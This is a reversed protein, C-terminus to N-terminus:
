AESIPPLTMTWEILTGGISATYSSHTSHGTLGNYVYRGGRSLITLTGNKCQDIAFKMDPLGKGRYTEETQSNGFKVAAAIHIGDNQLPHAEEGMVAAFTDKVWKQVHDLASLKSYTM